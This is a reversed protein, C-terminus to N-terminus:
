NKKWRMLGFEVDKDHDESIKEVINITGKYSMCVNLPQLNHFFQWPFLIAINCIKCKMNAIIIVGAQKFWKWVAYSHQVLGM